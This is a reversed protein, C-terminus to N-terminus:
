GFLGGEQAPNQRRKMVPDSRESKPEKTKREKKPADFSSWDHSPFANELLQRTPTWVRGWLYRRDCTGDYDCSPIVVQPAADGDIVVYSIKTGEDVDVGRAALIKAVRVHPPQSTERGKTSKGSAYESIPKSLGKTTQVDELPLAGELLRARWRAAMEGYAALDETPSEVRAISGRQRGCGPCEKASSNLAYRHGCGCELERMGGMLLGICEAQMVMTMRTQDGRKYAVGKIEPRSSVDAQKGKYHLFRAIYNKSGCFVLRDFQKEYALKVVNKPCGCRALLAPYHTENLWKTTQEIEERTIGDVFCSDTDAYLVRASPHRSVIAAETQEALWAGTQSVSEAVARVHFRCGENGQAGYFSNPVVKYANTWREADHAEPTGPALDARKSSWEKRKAVFHEIAEPILGPRSADFCVGTKPARCTGSPIPGNLPGDIRTEPSMNWSIMISPYMSSFDVVHVNRLLGAKEPPPKNYSGRYQERVAREGDDKMVTPFHMGRRTGLRLVFADMQATPLLAFSDDFLGCVEAITQHLKLYGTKQEIKRQLVTDRICYRVLRERQEGEAFWEDYTYRADFEDKGEGLQAQAVANLSFSQKEEGSEAVQMNLRKFLVMQDIWLWRKLISTDIRRDKTRARLIPRDFDDGNWIAVQDYPELAAYLDKLLAREAPDRDQELVGVKHEGTEDDVVCWVLIRAGQKRAVQPPVRSDTELDLYCRRPRQIAVDPHDAMWRKVPSCDGEYTPVGDDVCRRVISRRAGWGRWHTRVWDGEVRFGSCLPDKRWRRRMEATADEGKFYVAYEARAYHVLLKGAEDRHLLALRTEDNTVFANVLASV